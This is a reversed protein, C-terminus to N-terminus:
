RVLLSEEEVGLDLMDELIGSPTYLPQQGEIALYIDYVCIEEPRKKLKFGGKVGPM